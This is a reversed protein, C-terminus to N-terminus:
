DARGVREGISAGASAGAAAAGGGAASPPVLEWASGVEPAAAPAAAHVPAPEAASLKAEEKEAERAREKAAKVVRRATEKAARWAEAKADAEALHEDVEAVAAAEAEEKSSGAKALEVIRRRSSTVLCAQLHADRLCAQAV